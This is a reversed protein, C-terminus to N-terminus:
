SARLDVLEAMADRGTQWDGTLNTLFVLHELAEDFEARRAPDLAHLKRLAAVRVTAARVANGLEGDETLAEIHPGLNGVAQDLSSAPITDDDVADRLADMGRPTDQRDNLLFEAYRLRRLFRPEASEAGLDDRLVREAEDLRGQRRLLLARNATVAPDWHDPYLEHVPMSRPRGEVPDSSSLATVDLDWYWTDVRGAHSIECTLRWRRWTPTGTVPAVVLIGTKGAAVVFSLPGARVWTAAPPDADLLVVVDPQALPRYAAASREAPARFPEYAILAERYPSPSLYMTPLRSFRDNSLPTAAVSRLSAPGSAPATITLIVNHGTAPIWRGEPGVDDGPSVVLAMHSHVALEARYPASDPRGQVPITRQPRQELHATVQSSQAIPRPPVTERPPVAERRFFRDLLGM